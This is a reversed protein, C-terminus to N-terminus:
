TPPRPSARSKRKGGDTVAQREKGRLLQRLADMFDALEQEDLVPLGSECCPPRVHDAPPNEVGFLDHVIRWVDRTRDRTDREGVYLVDM